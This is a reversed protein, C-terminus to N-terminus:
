SKRTSQAAKVVKRAVKRCVNGIERELNRVGAERTYYRIIELIADDKFVINKESLGTQERQKKVLYQRAIELKEQETYGQLRLVEMRDQLRPRFPTCCM